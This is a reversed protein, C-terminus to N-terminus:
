AYGSASRWGVATSLADCVACSLPGDGFLVHVSCEGEVGDPRGGSGGGFERDSLAPENPQGCDVLVEEGQHVVPRLDERRASRHTDRHGVLPSSLLHCNPQHVTLISSTAAM